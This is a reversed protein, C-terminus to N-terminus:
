AKQAWRRERLPMQEGAQARTGEVEGRWAWFEALRLDAYSIWDFEVDSIEDQILAQIGWCFGPMGRYKDVEHCLQEVSLGGEANEIPAHTSYSQM